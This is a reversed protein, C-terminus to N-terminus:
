IQIYVSNFLKWFQCYCQCQSILSKDLQVEYSAFRNQVGQKELLKRNLTTIMQWKSMTLVKSITSDPYERVQHVDMISQTHHRGPIIQVTTGVQECGPPTFVPSNTGVLWLWSLTPHLYFTLKHCFLWVLTCYLSLVATGLTTFVSLLSQTHM